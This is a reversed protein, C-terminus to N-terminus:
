GKVLNLKERLMENEIKHGNLNGLTEQYINNVRELEETRIKLQIRTESLDGDFKRQFDRTDIMLQEHEKNKERLNRETVELRIDKEEISEKLFRLQKEYIDVLNNKAMELEHHHKEKLESIERYIKQEYGAVSDTKLNLLQQLYEQSRNKENLLESELRDLRDELRRNKELLQINEKTLYEKDQGLLDLKRRQAEEHSLKAGGPATQTAQKDYFSM